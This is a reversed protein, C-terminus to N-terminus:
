PLGALQAFSPALQEPIRCPRGQRDIWVHETTGSALRDAGRDVEYGFRVGRSGFRDIWATVRLEDGYRAARRYSVQVGTVTLFHGGREIEAYSVGTERCLRTRALEFWVLYASHHVIGMADTEAYRVEVDVSARTSEAM